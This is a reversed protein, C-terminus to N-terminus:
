GMFGMEGSSGGKAMVAELKVLTDMCKVSSNRATQMLKLCEAMLEKSQTDEPNDEVRRKFFDFAEKALVRDAKAETVLQKIIKKVRNPDLPDNELTYNNGM